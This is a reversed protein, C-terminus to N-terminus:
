ISKRAAPFIKVAVLLGQFILAQGTRRNLAPDANKLSAPKMVRFRDNGFDLFCIVERKLLSWLASIHKVKHSILAYHASFLFSNKGPSLTIFNM